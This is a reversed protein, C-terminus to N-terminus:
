PSTTSVPGLAPARTPRGPRSAAFAAPPRSARLVGLGLSLYLPPFYLASFTVMQYLELTLLMLALLDLSNRRSGRLVLTTWAWVFPLLFLLAGFLGREILLLIYNSAVVNDPAVEKLAGLGHGFWPAARVLDLNAADDAFRGTTNLFAMGGTSIQEWREGIAETAEPFWHVFGWLALAGTTALTGLRKLDLTVFATSAVLLALGAISGLSQSLLIGLSTMGLMLTRTSRKRAVSGLCYMWLLFRGLGSPEPFFSSVRTSGSSSSLGYGRQFGLDDGLQLNTIPLYALPLGFRRAAWQYIAYVFVIVVLWFCFRLLRPLSREWPLSLAAALVGIGIGYQVVHSWARPSYNVSTAAGIWASLGSGVLFLVAPHCWSSVRTAFVCLGVASLLQLTISFRGLNVLTFGFTVWGAFFGAVLLGRLVRQLDVDALKRSGSAGRPVANITSDEPIM